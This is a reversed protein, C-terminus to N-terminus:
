FLITYIFILICYIYFIEPMIIIVDYNGDSQFANKRADEATECVITNKTAYLVAKKIQM